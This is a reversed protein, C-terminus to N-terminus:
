RKDRQCCGRDRRLCCCGLGLHCPSHDNTHMRIREMNETDSRRWFQSDRWHAIFMISVQKGSLTWLTIAGDNDASAFDAGSPHGKPIRCLARIPHKSGQFSKLLKGSKHFIRIKKDACGTVITEPDFALVAWVNGEHHLTAECEWKGIPWIRADNDWSGSVIFKGAPDVDLSCVNDGHGILLADANDEPAKSPPRIDIV